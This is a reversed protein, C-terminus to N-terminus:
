NSTVATIAKIAVTVSLSYTKSKPSANKDTLVIKIKYPDIKANLNTPSFTISTHDETAFSLSDMLSITTFYQDKDPDSIQPLTYTVSNGPSM